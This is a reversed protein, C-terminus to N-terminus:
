KKFLKNRRVIQNEILQDKNWKALDSMFVNELAAKFDINLRPEASDIKTMLPLFLIFPTVGHLPNTAKKSKLTGFLSEIIDSSAHWVSNISPLKDGEEKLYSSINELLQKFTSSAGQLAQHCFDLCIRININSLGENKIVKQIKETTEFVKSLEKILKEYKKIWEFKGQEQESLKDFSDLIHKGWDIIPSLNMFRAINRQRPCLLYSMPTMILKAKAQKSEALFAELDGKGYSRETLRAIEHGVDAVRILGAEKIGKCMTSGRDSLVYAAKKGEKEMVKEISEQVQAGTWSPRVKMSLVEVESMPLAEKTEKTSRIGLIVLIREQGIVMSEDIILSYSENMYKPGSAEYISYGIKQVWNELTSKSPLRRLEIGMIVCMCTIAKLSSRLGCNGLIYVSVCLEVITRSYSHGIIKEEANVSQCSSKTVENSSLSLSKYRNRWNLRSEKLEKIRSRLRRNEANSSKSKEKLQKNDRQLKLIKTALSLKDRM